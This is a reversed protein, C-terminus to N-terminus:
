NYQSRKAHVLDRLQSYAAAFAPLAVIEAASIAVSGDAVERTAGSDLTEVVVFSAVASPAGGPPLTFSLGVCHRERSTVKPELPLQTPM